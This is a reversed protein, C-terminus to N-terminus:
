PAAAEAPAPEGLEARRKFLSITVVHDVDARADVEGALATLVTWAFTDRSPPQGDITPVSVSVAIADASM